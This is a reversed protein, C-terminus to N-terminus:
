DNKLLLSFLRVIAIEYDTIKKDSLLIVAGLLEINDIIPFVVKCSNTDMNKFWKVKSISKDVINKRELILNILNRSLEVNVLKKNLNKSSFLVKNMDVVIINLNFIKDFSKIICSAKEEYSALKNYKKLIMNDNEIYIELSDNEGIKLNNRIEKPIVIRGLGDIKRIMGTSKM